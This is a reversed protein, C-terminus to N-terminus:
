IKIHILTRSTPGRSIFFSLNFTFSIEFMVTCYEFRRNLDCAPFAAISPIFPIFATKPFFVAGNIVAMPRKAATRRRLQTSSRNRLRGHTARQLLIGDDGRSESPRGLRLRPPEGSAFDPISGFRPVPEACTNQRLDAGSSHVRARATRTDHPARPLSSVVTINGLRQSGKPSVIKMALGLRIRLKMHQLGSNYPGLPNSLSPLAINLTNRVILDHSPLRDHWSNSSGM